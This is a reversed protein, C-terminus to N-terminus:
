SILINILIQLGVKQVFYDGYRNRKKRSRVFCVAPKSPAWQFVATRQSVLLICIM